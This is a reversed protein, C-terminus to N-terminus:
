EQPRGSLLRNFDKHTINAWNEFSFRAKTNETAEGKGKYLASAMGANHATEIDYLENDGVFVAEEKTCGILSLGIDFLLPHQKRIGYDASSVIASFIGDFGCQDLQEKLLIGSHTTNSIVGLRLGQTQADRFFKVAGDVAVDDRADRYYISELRSMPMTTRLSLYGFICRLLQKFSFELATLDRLRQFELETDVAFEVMEEVDKLEADPCICRFVSRFGRSADFNRGSIVLTGGYDALIGKLV